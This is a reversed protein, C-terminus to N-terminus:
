AAAMIRQAIMLFGRFVRHEIVVHRPAPPVETIGVALAFVAGLGLAITEVEALAAVALIMLQAGLAEDMAIRHAFRRDIGTESVQAGVVVDFVATQIDAALANGFGLQPDVMAPTDAM